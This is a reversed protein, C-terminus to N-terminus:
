NGGILFNFENPNSYNCIHSANKIIYIKDNNVKRKTYNLFFTDHEGYIYMANINAMNKIHINAEKIFTNMEEMWSYLYTKKMKKISVNYLKKRQVKNMKGPLLIYTIFLMYLRRPIFSKISVLINYLINLNNWSFRYIMGVLYVKNVTKPYKECYINAIMAGISLGIIDIKNIKNTKLYNYIEEAVREMKANNINDEIGHGSLRIIIINYRKNLTDIQKDFIHENGCMCHILVIWNQKDNNYVNYIM